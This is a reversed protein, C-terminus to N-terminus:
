SIPRVGSESTPPAAEPKEGVIGLEAAHQPEQEPLIHRLFRRTREDKPNFFVETPPLANILVAGFETAQSGAAPTTLTYNPNAGTQNYAYVAAYYTYGQTLGTVAVTNGSGAYVAYNGMGLEAGNGFVTASRM